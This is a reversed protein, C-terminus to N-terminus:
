HFRVGRCCRGLTTLLYSCSTPADSCVADPMELDSNEVIEAAKSRATSIAGPADNDSTQLDGNSAQMSRQVSDERRHPSHLKLRAM